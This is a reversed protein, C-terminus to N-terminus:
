ERNKYLDIRNMLLTDPPEIFVEIDDLPVPDPDTVPEVPTLMVVIGFGLLFMIIASILIETRTKM